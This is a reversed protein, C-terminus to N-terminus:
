EAAVEVPAPMVLSMSQTRLSWVVKLAELAIMTSMKSSGRTRNPFVIPVEVIRFGARHCVYNMEVQFGYGSSRIANLDLSALVSTRFCKFGSTCDRVPISLMLQAYCSGVWSVLWRLPSWDLAKGGKVWRSGIVVDADGAAELLRPLDQPRHSFDADMEAAHMYGHEIAYRFGAIYATGLGLKGARHLVEVRGASERSLHEALDGTGDPSADDVVLIDISPSLALVSETLRSLNDRECYTPIIVLTRV